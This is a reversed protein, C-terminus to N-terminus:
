EHVEKCGPKYGMKLGLDQLLCIVEMLGIECKILSLENTERHVLKM